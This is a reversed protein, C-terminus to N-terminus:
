HQAPHFKDVFDQAAEVSAFERVDAEYPGRLKLGNPMIAAWHGNHPHIAWGDSRRWYQTTPHQWWKRM